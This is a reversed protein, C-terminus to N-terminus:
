LTGIGSYSGHAVVGPYHIGEAIDNGGYVCPPAISMCSCLCVAPLSRAYTQICHYATAHAIRMPYVCLWRAALTRAGGVRSDFVPNPVSVRRPTDVGQAPHRLRVVCLVQGNLPWYSHATTWRSTDEDLVYDM